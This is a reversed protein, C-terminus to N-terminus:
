FEPCTGALTLGSLDAHALAYACVALLHLDGGAALLDGYVADGYLALGGGGVYAVFLDAHRDGFFFDNHLLAGHHLLLDADALVHHLVCLDNLLVYPALLDVYVVLGAPGRALALVATAENFPRSAEVLSDRGKKM